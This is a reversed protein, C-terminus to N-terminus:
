IRCFSMIRKEPYRIVIWRQLAADLHAIVHIWGTVLIQTLETVGLTLQPGLLFFTVNSALRSLNGCDTM